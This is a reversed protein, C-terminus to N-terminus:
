RKAAWNVMRRVARNIAWTNKRGFWDLLPVLKDKHGGIPSGDGGRMASIRIAAISRGYFASPVTVSTLSVSGRRHGRPSHLLAYKSILGVHRKEALLVTARSVEGELLNTGVEIGEKRRHVPSSYWVDVEIVLM